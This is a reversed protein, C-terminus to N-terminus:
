KTLKSSGTNKPRSHPVYISKLPTGRNKQYHSLKQQNQATPTPPHPNNRAIQCQFCSNVGLEIYKRRRTEKAKGIGLHRKKFVLRIITDILACSWDKWWTYRQEWTLTPNSTQVTWYLPTSQTSLAITYTEPRDTGTEPLPHRSFYDAMNSKCPIHIMEFDLNSANIQTTSQTQCNFQQIAGAFTQPRNSVPIKTRGLPVNPSQNDYVGSRTSREGNPLVEKREEDLYPQCWIYM